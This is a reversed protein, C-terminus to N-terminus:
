VLYQMLLFMLFMLFLTHQFQKVNVYLSKKETM